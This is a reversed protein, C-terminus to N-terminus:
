AFGFGQANELAMGLRERLAERDRYVPLLLTGYCTYATPLHGGDGEVEGNKQLVFQMNRVGGVPVRDSATVFELLKRKMEDDYRKVISWFDRVTPHSSDWGVYRTYRRLEGIDIEQVGEVISQLISPTLLSLSKADFCAKFGREFAIFQPNVSVDTLYSLYDSIYDYRNDGTVAEADDCDAAAAVSSRTSPIPIGQPWSSGGETMPVTVEGGLTSVSFEYTRAFVDEVLGDREDWEQLAALGSALEPWGDAIHHLEEIPEGLLKRYLAKPFTVPLTLGNYVALSMLLGIMEFKWEEVLSGPVFWAMRTRGDVTFAGFDPDLCEAVAMRFFEQQVGGSDFGEEGEAGEGLHVKLPRLLEREQRRWLQDFADRLVHKRSITLVLYQSSATQLLDQLVHKHHPNTVLSGPDVIAAMRTKLSSSEEYTRSMRSFNISRFYSVVTEQSFLYPHDLIHHVQRTPTFSTWTVPVEMADLRESFYHVRFQADGLLLKNRNIYLTNFLSMAGHFPGDNSYEPRGNWEQLLVARAWDLLLTPVRAEHLFRESQTFELIRADDSSFIDLQDLVLGMANMDTATDELDVDSSAMEAFCERATIACFVRRALRLALENSFVDDYELCTPLRQRAATSQNPLAMGGSRIRSMEYLMKSDTACPATAVLAHLCISMICGAEFNSLSAHHGFVETSPPRRGPKLSEPPVFLSKAALWLSHLVVSPAARTMRMMCFWLTHSDYLKGDKTFSKVLSPPDSMVSFITQENFAKWQTRLISAETKQTPKRALKKSDNLPKPHNEAITLPGFFEKESSGDEDFVDCIFDILEVNLYSLAQPLPHLTWSPSPRTQSLVKDQGARKQRAKRNRVLAPANKSAYEDQADRDFSLRDVEEVSPSSLCPVNEFFAPTVPIEPVTRSLVGNTLKPNRAKKDAFANNLPTSRLGDSQNSPISPELSAKKQPKSAPGTKVSGRSTRKLRSSDRAIIADDHRLPERLPHASSEQGPTSVPQVSKSSSRHLRPRHENSTIQVPGGVNQGATKKAADHQRELEPKRAESYNDSIAQLGQPTLWELMKFAMTGFTTAVFSRHDKCLPGETIKVELVDPDSGLNEDDSGARPETKPHQNQNTDQNATAGRSDIASAQCKRALCPRIPKSQTGLSNKRSHGPSQPSPPEATHSRPRPPVSFMLSSVAPPPDISRRLYPCLGRHPHDQSALCVALTRASTSSYRRIPATGVLRKRCTFCTATLCLTSGCGVRLQHIYLDVLLQFDHRRSARHIAYVRSPNEVDEVYERLESPADDPMLAFPAEKWLGAIFDSSDQTAPHNNIKPDHSLGQFAGDVGRGADPRASASM